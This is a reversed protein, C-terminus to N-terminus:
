KRKALDRCNLSGDEAEKPHDYAPPEAAATAAKQDPVVSVEFSFSRLLERGRSLPDAPDEAFKMHSLVFTLRMGRLRFTRVRGWDPYDACGGQLDQSWIEGRSTAERPRSRDDILLSELEDRAQLSHLHCSFDAWSDADEAELAKMGSCHFRYLPSGDLGHIVLSLRASRVDNFEYQEHIPKVLPWRRQGGARVHSQSALLLACLSALACKRLTEFQM